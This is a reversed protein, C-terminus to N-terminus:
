STDSKSFPRFRITHYSHVINKAEGLFVASYGIDGPTEQPLLLFYMVM